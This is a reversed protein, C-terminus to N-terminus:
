NRRAASAGWADIADARQVLMEAVAALDPHVRTGPAQVLWQALEDDGIAGARGSRVLHSECGAAVAAQADKLSDGVAVVDKMHVGYREGIELLLGPLPKRCECVEGPAHPCFFVADIRGGAGAVMAMMHAHVANLSAMDYMGRGIGPQNTAVVVHWGAHHIRAIAELAGPLPEWEDPSKVHDGRFANITGDRGLIVLRNPTM